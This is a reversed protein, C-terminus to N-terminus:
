VLLRATKTVTLTLTLNGGNPTLEPSGFYDSIAAVGIAVNLIIALVDIAVSIKGSIGGWTENIGNSLVNELSPHLKKASTAAFHIAYKKLLFFVRLFNPLLMASTALMAPNYYVKQMSKPVCDCVDILTSLLFDSLELDSKDICNVDDYTTPGSTFNKLHFIRDCLIFINHVLSAFSCVLHM